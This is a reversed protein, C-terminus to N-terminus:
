AHSLHACPLVSVQSMNEKFCASELTGAERAKAAKAYTWAAVLLSQSGPLSIFGRSGKKKIKAQFSGVAVEQM